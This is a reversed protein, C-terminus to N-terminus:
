HLHLEVILLYDGYQEYDFLIFDRPSRTNHLDAQWKPAAYQWPVWGEILRELRDHRDNGLLVGATMAATARARTAQETDEAELLEALLPLLQTSGRWRLGWAIARSVYPDEGWAHLLVLEAPDDARAPPKAPGGETEVREAEPPPLLSVGRVAARRSLRQVIGWDDHGFDRDLLQQASWGDERRGNLYRQAYPLLRVDGLMGLAEIAYGALLDQGRQAGNLAELLHEAYDPNGSLGLALACSARFETNDRTDLLERILAEEVEEITDEIERMQRRGRNPREGEVVSDGHTRHYRLWLGLGLAAHSRSIHMEKQWREWGEINGIGRGSLLRIMMMADEPVGCEGFTMSFTSYGRSTLNEPFPIEGSIMRRRERDTMRYRFTDLSMEGREAREPLISPFDAFRTLAWHAGHRAHVRFDAGSRRGGSRIQFLRIDQAHGEARAVDTLLRVDRPDGLQGLGQIAQLLCSVTFGHYINQWLYERLGQPNHQVLAWILMRTAEDCNGNDVDAPLQSVLGELYDGPPDTLLGSASALGVQGFHDGPRALSLLLLAEPTDHLGLALWGAARVPYVADGDRLEALRDLADQDASLRGLALASQSRVGAQGSRSSALLLEILRDLEGDELVRGAGEPPAPWREDVLPREYRHRNTEWWHMWSRRVQEYGPRDYTEINSADIQAFAPLASSFVAILGVTFTVYQRM